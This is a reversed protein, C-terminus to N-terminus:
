DPLGAHRLGQFFIRDAMSRVTPYDFPALGRLVAISAVAPVKEQMRALQRDNLWFLGDRM